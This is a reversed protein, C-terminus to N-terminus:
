PTREFNASDQHAPSPMCPWPQSLLGPWHELWGKSHEADTQVVLRICRHQEFAELYRQGLEPPVVKDAAGLAHLQPLKELQDTFDVPDLSGSMPSVGHHQTFAAVALNGAVTRVGVVDQRGRAVLLAITGGGSFGVLEVWEAGTRQKLDNVGRNVAQIVALGYREDTWLSPKCAPQRPLPQYQCPRALYAIPFLSPDRIALRLAIPNHPTPDPSPRYRNQWAHGDGELYIRLLKGPGTRRLSFLQFDPTDIVEAQFGTEVAAKLTQDRILGPTSVCSALCLVIGALPSRLCFRQLISM